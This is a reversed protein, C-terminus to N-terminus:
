FPKQLIYFEIETKMQKQLSIYGNLGAKKSFLQHLSGYTGYSGVLGLVPWVLIEFDDM